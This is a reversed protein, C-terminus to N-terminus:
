GQLNGDIFVSVARMPKNHNHSYVIYQDNPYIISLFKAREDAPAKSTFTAPRYGGPSDPCYPVNVYVVEDHRSRGRRYMVTYLFKENKDSRRSM